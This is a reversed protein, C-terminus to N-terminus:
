GRLLLLPYQVSVSVHVLDIGVTAAPLRHVPSVQDGGDEGEGSLRGLSGRGGGGGGGGGRGGGGGGGGRRDGRPEPISM